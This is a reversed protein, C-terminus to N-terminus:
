KGYSHIKFFKARVYQAGKIIVSSVFGLVHELFYVVCRKKLSAESRSCIVRYLCRWRGWWGAGEMTAMMFGEQVKTRYISPKGWKEDCQKIASWVPLSLQERKRQATYARIMRLLGNGSVQSFPKTTIGTGVSYRVTVDESAFKLIPLMSDQFRIMACWFLLYDDLNCKPLPYKLLERNWFCSCGFMCSPLWTAERPWSWGSGKAYALGKGIVEYNTCVGRLSPTDLILRAVTTIRSPLAEDDGCFM